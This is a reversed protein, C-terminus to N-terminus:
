KKWVTKGEKIKDTPYATILFGDGNTARAVACVLRRDDRSYFLYVDDDIRSLRIEDPASLARKVDEVRGGMVPHQAVIKNIWYSEHCHVRFGLPTMVAFLIPDDNV